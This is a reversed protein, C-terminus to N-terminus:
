ALRALGLPQLEGAAGAPGDVSLTSARRHLYGNLIINPGGVISDKLLYFLNNGKTDAEHTGSHWSRRGELPM